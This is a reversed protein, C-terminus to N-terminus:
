RRQRRRSLLSAAAIALASISTPEPLHQLGTDYFTGFIIVDNDTFVGDYDLDGIAWYAEAGQEFYTSFLIADSDTVLGDLNLDVRHTFKILVSEAPVDIGAFNEGGNSVGFPAPLLSNDAIALVFNGAADDSAAASSTIGTGLWNGGNFGIAILDELAAAPSNGDYVTGAGYRIIMDNNALDLTGGSDITLSKPQSVFADDGSPHDPFTPSSDFVQLKAGSSITVANNEQLRHVKLTGGNVTTGGTYTLAGTLELTGIGQKGIGYSGSINSSYTQTV